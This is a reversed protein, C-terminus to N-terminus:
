KLGLRLGLSLSKAPRMMSFDPDIGMKNAKWLLTNALFYGYLQVSSFPSSKRSVWTGLDYNLSIDKLRINDGKQVLVSSSQYFADRLYNSNALTPMSPVYTHKEDGVKQWRKDFDSSGDPNGIVSSGYGFISSYNISQAHFYYGAKYSINVSVTFRNYTFDNM